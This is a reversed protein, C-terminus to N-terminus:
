ARRLLALFVLLVIAGVVSAIFGAMQGGQLLGLARAGYTGLFSGGVGILTTSIIGMSDNGPKLLRAVLGIVFGIVITWIIEM